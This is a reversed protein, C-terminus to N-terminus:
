ADSERVGVICGPGPSAQTGNIIFSTVGIIRAPRIDSFETVYGATCITPVFDINPIRLM